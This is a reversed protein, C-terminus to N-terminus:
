GYLNSLFKGGAKRSAGGAKQYSGIGWRHKAKKWNRVLLMDSDHSKRPMQWQRVKLNSKANMNEETSQKM